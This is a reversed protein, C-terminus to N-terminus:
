GAHETPRSCRQRVRSRQHCVPGPVPQRLVRKDQGGRVAGTRLGAHRGSRLCPGRGIRQAVRGALALRPWRSRLLVRRVVSPTRPKWSPRDRRSDALNCGAIRPGAPACPAHREGAAPPVVRDPRGRLPQRPLPDHATWGRRLSEADHHRHIGRSRGEGDVGATPAVRPRIKHACRHRVGAVRQLWLVSKRSGSERKM